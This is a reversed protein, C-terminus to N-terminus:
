FFVGPTDCSTTSPYPLKPPLSVLKTGYEQFLPKGWRRYRELRELEKGHQQRLRARCTAGTESPTQCIRDYAAKLDEAQQQARVFLAEVQFRLVRGNVPTLM